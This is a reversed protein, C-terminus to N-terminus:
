KRGQLNFNTYNFILYGFHIFFDFNKDGNRKRAGNTRIKWMPPNGNEKWPKKYSILGIHKTDNAWWKDIYVKHLAM